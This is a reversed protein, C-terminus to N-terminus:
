SLMLLKQWRAYVNPRKNKLYEIINNKGDENLLIVDSRNLDIDKLLLINMLEKDTKLSYVLKVITPVTGRFSYMFLGLAYYGYYRINKM